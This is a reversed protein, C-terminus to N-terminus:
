GVACLKLSTANSAVVCLLTLTPEPHPPRINPTGNWYSSKRKTVQQPNFSAGLGLVLLMLSEAVGPRHPGTRISCSLPHDIWQDQEGILNTLSGQSPDSCVISCAGDMCRHIPNASCELPSSPVVLRQGCDRLEHVATDM